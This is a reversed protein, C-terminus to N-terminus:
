IKHITFRTTKTHFIGYSITGTRGQIEGPNALLCGGINEVKAQHTHGYFVCHYKRTHALTLARYPSHTLAIRQKDILLTAEEGYLSLNPSKKSIQEFARTEYDNNGLVLDIPLKQSLEILEKLTHPSSIDGLCFIRSCPSALIKEMALALHDTRDHIDSIVAINM